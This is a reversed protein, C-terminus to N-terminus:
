SGRYTSYGFPSLLLPVHFHETTATVRFEIMVQPYFALTGVKAFYEGTAFTLRYRGVAFASLKLLDTLRGDDSTVGEGLLQWVDALACFELRVVIGAAPRGQSIDLVHTTIPSKANM